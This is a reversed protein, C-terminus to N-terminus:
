FCSIEATPDNAMSVSFAEVFASALPEAVSSLV